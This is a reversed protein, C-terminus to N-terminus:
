VHGGNRQPYPPKRKGWNRTRIFNLPAAPYGPMEERSKYGRGGLIGGRPISQVGGVATEWISPVQAGAGVQPQKLWAITM